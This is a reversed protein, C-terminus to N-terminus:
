SFLETSNKSTEKPDLDDLFFSCVLVRFFEAVLYCWAFFAIRNVLFEVRRGYWEDLVPFGSYDFGRSTIYYAISCFGVVAVFKWGKRLSLQTAITRVGCLAALLFLGSLLGSGWGSNSREYALWTALCAGTM